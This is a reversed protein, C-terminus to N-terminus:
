QDSGLYVVIRENSDASGQYASLLAGNFFESLALADSVFTPDYVIVTKSDATAEDTRVDTVTYGATELAKSEREALGTIGSRNVLVVSVGNNPVTTVGDREAQLEDATLTVGDVEDGIRVKYDRGETTANGIFWVMICLGVVLLVVGTLPQRYKYALQLLTVMRAKLSKARQMHGRLDLLGAQLPATLSIRRKTKTLNVRRVKNVRVLSQKPDGMTVGSLAFMRRIYARIAWSLLWIFSLLGGIVLLLPKWPIVWFHTEAMLSQRGNEGYSLVAEARYRGIDSVSWEGTWGFTYKRVSSPLVNGFMSKRNVPIVGREQGWMNFIRIDGRPQIHVNGNNQIRLEFAVDPKDLVTKTTRFSRITAKEEIDGAVRLFFLSSVVQSTAVASQGSGSEVKKTGILVAAYRGGPPADVPVAIKLPLSVTQEAPVTFTKNEGIDIWAALTDSAVEDDLLPLFTAAGSEDRPTFNVVSAELELEFPNTNIVRITSNWVKGPEASM